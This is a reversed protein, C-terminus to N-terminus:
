AAGEDGAERAEIDPINYFTRGSNQDKRKRVLSRSAWGQISGRKAGTRQIADELPLWDASVFAAHAVARWYSEADYKRECSPCVWEDRLGGRDHPCRAHPLYCVGDHGDCDHVETRKKAPRILDVNCSLCPVGRETRHGALLLNELRTKTDAVDAAFADWNPENGWAWELTGRLFNVETAITPRRELAYGRWGESWFLLTQLPPETGDEDLAHEAYRCRTHDLKPCTALHHFEAAAINESWEEPSGVGALAVMADGGPLSTGDIRAGAKHIAQVLLAEYLNEIERLNRAVEVVPKVQIENVTREGEDNREWSTTFTM